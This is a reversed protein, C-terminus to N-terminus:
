EGRPRKPSPAAEKKVHVLVSSLVDSTHRATEAMQRLTAFERAMDRHKGLEWELRQVETRLRTNQEELRERQRVCQALEGELRQM